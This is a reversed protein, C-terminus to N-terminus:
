SLAMGVQSNAGVDAIDSNPSAPDTPGTWRGQKRVANLVNHAFFAMYGERDVKWRGRLRCRAWGLRGLAAFIGEAITQRRVRERRYECSQNRERALLTMPYYRTLSVYRRKQRPPLCDNKIPCAQSDERWATYTYRQEKQNFGRGPQVRTSAAGQGESLDPPRGQYIFGGSGVLTDEQVPRLPQVPQLPIYAKIGRDELLQRLEGTSYGTDMALSVPHIALHELLQPVAKWEGQSAHTVGCALIFGGLDVIVNDQYCSEALIVVASPRITHYSSRTTPLAQALSTPFHIRRSELPHVPGELIKVSVESRPKPAPLGPVVAAM